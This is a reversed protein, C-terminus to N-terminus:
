FSSNRANIAHFRAWFSGSHYYYAFFLPIYVNEHRRAHHFIFSFPEITTDFLLLGRCSQIVMPQTREGGKETMFYLLRIWFLSLPHVNFLARPMSLLCCCCLVAARRQYPSNLCEFECLPPHEHLWFSLLSVSSGLIKYRRLSFQKRPFPPFFSSSYAFVSPLPAGKCVTSLVETRRKQLFKFISQPSISYATM